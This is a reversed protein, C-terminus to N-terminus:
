LDPDNSAAEIVAAERAAQQAKAENIMEQLEREAETVQTLTVDHRVPANTGLLVAKAQVLARLEKLAELQIKPHANERHITWAEQAIVDLEDALRARMRPIDIAPAMAEREGSWRAITEKSLGYEDSISQLTRRKITREMAVERVLDDDMIRGTRTENGRGRGGRGRPPLIIEGELPKSGDVHEDEWGM